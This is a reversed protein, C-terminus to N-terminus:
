RLLSRLEKGAKRAAMQYVTSPSVGAERAIEAHPRKGLQDFWPTLRSNRPKYAKTRCVKAKTRIRREHLIFECSESCGGNEEPDFLRMRHGRSEAHLEFLQDVSLGGRFFRHPKKDTGPYDAEMKRHWDFASPDHDIQMLLKNFSKKFCGICNGQYEEIELDFTQDKWFRLVDAKEIGWEILPYRLNIATKGKKFIDTDSQFLKIQPSCTDTKARRKEDARIGIATPYLSMDAIKKCYSNITNTKMERTCHPSARCPIGYKAIVSEFIMGERDATEYSVVRHNTGEGDRSDVMAELWVVNFGFEVDCRHVFDLTKPHEKGTNSFTVIFDYLHGEEKLLRYTMYASTRGGSFSIFHIPKM